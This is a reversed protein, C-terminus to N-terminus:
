WLFRLIPYSVVAFLACHTILKSGSNRSGDTMTTTDQELAITTETSTPAPGDLHRSVCRGWVDIMFVLYVNDQLVEDEAIFGM